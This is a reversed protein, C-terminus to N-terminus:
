DNKNGLHNIGLFFDQRDVGNDQKVQDDTPHNQDRSLDFTAVLLTHATPHPPVRFDAIVIACSRPLHHSILFFYSPHMM